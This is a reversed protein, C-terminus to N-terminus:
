RLASMAADTHAPQGPSYGTFTLLAVDEPELDSAKQYAQQAQRYDHRNMLTDGLSRWVGSDGSDLKVLKGLASQRADANGSLEASELELRARDLESIANGRALAQDLTAVAGARDRQAKIQALLRYPPVFDPGAALAAGLGVEIVAADSSELAKM